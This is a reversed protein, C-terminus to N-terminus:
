AAESWFPGRERARAEDAQAMLTMLRGVAGGRFDVTHSALADAYAQLVSAPVRLPTGAAAVLARVGDVAHVAGFDPAAASLGVFLYRAAAMREVPLAEGRRVIKDALSPLYCAFGARELGAMVRREGRPETWVAFWARGPDIVTRPRSLRVPVKHTLAAPSHRRRRNQRRKHKM